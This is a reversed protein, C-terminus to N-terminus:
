EYVKSTAYAHNVRVCLIKLEYNIYEYANTLKSM